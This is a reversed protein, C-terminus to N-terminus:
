AIVKGPTPLKVVIKEFVKAVGPWKDARLKAPITAVHTLDIGLTKADEYFRDHIRAYDADKRGSESLLSVSGWGVKIDAHDRIDYHAILRQLYVAAAFASVRPLFM